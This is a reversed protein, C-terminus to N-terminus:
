EVYKFSTAIAEGEDLDQNYCYVTVEYAVNNKEDVIAVVFVPTREGEYISYGLVCYANDIHTLKAVDTISEFDMDQAIERAGYKPDQIFEESEEELSVKEYDVAIYDMGDGVSEYGVMTETGTDYPNFTENSEFSMNFKTSKYVKQSEGSMCGLFILMLFFASLKKM